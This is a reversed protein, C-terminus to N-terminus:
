NNPKPPPERGSSGLRRVELTLAAELVPTSGNHVDIIWQRRDADSISGKSIEMLSTIAERRAADIGELELGPDDPARDGNRFRFYFRPM